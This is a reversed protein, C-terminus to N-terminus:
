TNRFAGGVTNHKTAARRCLPQVGAITAAWSPRASQRLTSTSALASTLRGFSTDAHMHAPRTRLGRGCSKYRAAITLSPINSTQTVAHTTTPATYTRCLWSSTTPHSPRKSTHSNAHMHTRSQTHGDFITSVHLRTHTQPRNPKNKMCANKASTTSTKNQTYKTYARVYADCRRTHQRLCV